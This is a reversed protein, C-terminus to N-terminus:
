VWTVFHTSSATEPTFPTLCTMEFMESPAEIVVISNRRSTFWSRATLSTFSAILLIRMLRGRVMSSGIM